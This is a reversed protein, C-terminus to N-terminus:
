YYYTRYQNVVVVDDYRRNYHESYSNYHRNKRYHKNHRNNHNFKAHRHKNNRNVYHKRYHNKQPRTHLIEKEYIVRTNYNSHTNNNNIIQSVIVGVGFGFLANRESESFAFAQSAVLLSVLIITFKKM